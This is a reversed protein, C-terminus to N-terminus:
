RQPGSRSGDCFGRNPRPWTSSSKPPVVIRLKLRALPLQVLLYGLQNYTDASEGRALAPPLEAALQLDLALRLADRADVAQGVQGLAM